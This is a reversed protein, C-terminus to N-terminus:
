NTRSSEPTGEGGPSVQRVASLSAPHLVRCIRACICPMLHALFDHPAHCKPLRVPRVLFNLKKNKAKHIVPHPCPPPSVFITHCQIVNVYNEFTGHLGHTERFGEGNSASQRVGVRADATRGTRRNATVM